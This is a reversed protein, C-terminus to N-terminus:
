AIPTSDPISSCHPINSAEFARKSWSVGFPSLSVEPVDEEVEQSNAIVRGQRLSAPQRDARARVLSKTSQLQQFFDMGRHGGDDPTVGWVPKEVESLLEADLLFSGSAGPCM